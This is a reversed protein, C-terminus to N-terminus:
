SWRWSDDKDCHVRFFAHLLEDYLPMPAQVIIEPIIGVVNSDLCWALDHRSTPFQIQFEYRTFIASVINLLFQSGALPMPMPPLGVARIVAEREIWIDEFADQSIERLSPLPDPPAADDPTAQQFLGAYALIVPFWNRFMRVCEADALIVLAWGRCMKIANSANTELIRIKESRELGHMHVHTIVVSVFWVFVLLFPLFTTDPGVLQILESWM